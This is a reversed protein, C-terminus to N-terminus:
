RRTLASLGVTVARRALFRAYIKADTARIDWRSLDLIGRAPLSRLWGRYDTLQNRGISASWSGSNLRFVADVSRLGVFEGRKLVRVYMDLDTLYPHDDTFPLSAKLADARFLVSSPEGFPNVGSLVARRMTRTGARYGKFGTLGLRPLVSRGGHSVVRRRSAVLVADPNRTAAALQRDIGGHMVFDDACLLKIWQGGASQCAATWNAGASVPTPSIIVRLRPDKQTALWEATGDTSFNEVVIVEMQTSPNSLVSGLAQKIFPM